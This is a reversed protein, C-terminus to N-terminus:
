RSDIIVKACDVSLRTGDAALKVLLELLEDRKGEEYDKIAEGVESVVPIVDRICKIISEIDPFQAPKELPKMIGVFSLFDNGAKTCVGEETNCEYGNPCCKQAGACCVGQTYPCCIEGNSSQCLTTNEGCGLDLSAVMSVTLALLILTKM